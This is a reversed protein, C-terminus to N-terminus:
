GTPAYVSSLDPGLIDTLGSWDGGASPSLPGTWGLSAAVDEETPSTPTVAQGPQNYGITNWWAQQPDNAWDATPIYGSGVPGTAIPGPSYAGAGGAGAGVRPAAYGGGGGQGEQALRARELALQESQYPTMLQSTPDFIPAGPNRGEASTLDRQGQEQLQESTLGLAQLYAATANPSDGGVGTAAGREAAQQQLLRITSASPQGALETAINGSSTTELATAGPIRGANARQQAGLNLSNIYDTLQGLQMGGAPATGSAGTQITPSSYTAPSWATPQWSAPANPSGTLFNTIVPAPM